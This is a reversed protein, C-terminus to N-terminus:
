RNLLNEAVAGHLYRSGRINFESAVDCIKVPLLDYGTWGNREFFRVSSINSRWNGVRRFCSPRVHLWRRFFLRPEV